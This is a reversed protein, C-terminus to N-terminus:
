SKKDIVDVLISGKIDRNRQALDPLRFQEWLEPKHVYTLQLKDQHAPPAQSIVWRRFSCFPATSYGRTLMEAVNGVFTPIPSPPM